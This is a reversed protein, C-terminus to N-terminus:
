KEKKMLKMLKGRELNSLSAYCERMKSIFMHKPWPYVLGKHKDPSSKNETFADYDQELNTLLDMLLDLLDLPLYSFDIQEYCVTGDNRIPNQIGLIKKYVEEFM